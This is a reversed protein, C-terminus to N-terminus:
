GRFNIKKKIRSNLSDQFMENTQYKILGLNILCCDVYSKSYTQQPNNAIECEVKSPEQFYVLPDMLTSTAQDKMSVGTCDDDGNRKVREIAVCGTYERDM